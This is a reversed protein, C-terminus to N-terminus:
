ASLPSMLYNCLTQHMEIDTDIISAGIKTEQDSRFVHQPVCEITIPRKSEPLAFTISIRAANRAERMGVEYSRPVSILLGGLSINVVLVTQLLSKDDLGSASVLAPFSVTKRPHRRKEGDVKKNRSFEPYLKDVCGPCLSHTFNLASHSKLYSEVQIWYGDDNRIDKCNACIPLLGSLTKINDLAERLEKILREKERINNFREISYKISRHLLIGDTKNKNLYDQVSHQLAQMAIAEDDLGTLVIIPANKETEGMKKVTDIGKSDPLSLDLLIVDVTNEALYKLADRLLEKHILEYNVGHSDNADAEHIMEEILVADTSNDEVLLIKLANAM